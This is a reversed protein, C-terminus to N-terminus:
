SNLNFTYEYATSFIVFIIESTIDANLYYPKPNLNNAYEFFANVMEEPYTTKLYVKYETNLIDKKSEIIGCAVEFCSERKNTIQILHLACTVFVGGKYHNNSVINEKDKLFLEYQSRIQRFWLATEDRPLEEQEHIDNDSVNNFDIDGLYELAIDFTKM